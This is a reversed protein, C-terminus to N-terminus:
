KSDTHLIQTSKGSNNHLIFTHFILQNGYYVLTNIKTYFFSAEPLKLLPLQIKQMEQGILAKM